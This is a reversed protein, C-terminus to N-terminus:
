VGIKPCFKAISCRECYAKRATCVARGHSILLHAYRIWNKKPVVRMLFQELKEPDKLKSFGLRRSLRGVHTDVVLSPVQFGVGLVVNATKRGVGKLKVLESLVPPVEGSHQEVLIRSTELIAKAKNKYFNVSRILHMIQSLEAQAMHQADPFEAFLQPTVQNVREDTCQASLLTAILLQYPTKFYLSCEAEPYERELVQIIVEMRRLDAAHVKVKQTVM